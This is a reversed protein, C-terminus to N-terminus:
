EADSPAIKASASGQTFVGFAELQKRVKAVAAAKHPDDDPLQELDALIEELAARSPGEM